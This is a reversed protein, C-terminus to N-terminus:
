AAEVCGEGEEGLRSGEGAARKRSHWSWRLESGVAVKGGGDGAGARARLVGRPRLVHEVAARHDEKSV